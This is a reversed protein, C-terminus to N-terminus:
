AYGAAREVGRNVWAKHGGRALRRNVLAVEVARAQVRVRERLRAWVHEIRRRHPGDAM